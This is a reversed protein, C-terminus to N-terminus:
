GAVPKLLMFIQWMVFITFLVLLSILVFFRWRRSNDDRRAQGLYARDITLWALFGTLAIIVIWSM